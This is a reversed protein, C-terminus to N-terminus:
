RRTYIKSLASAIKDAIRLPEPIPSYICTKKVLGIAEDVDLGKIYARIVRWPTNVLIMKKYTEEIVRYREVWDVFHESLAKKVRDLNLEHTQIVIVGKGTAYNLYDPDVVDFGAYTVGDLLVVEGRLLRSMDIITNITTNQDVRVTAWTVDLVRSVGEVEVGVIFTFGRGGKYYVPFFGDDYAEILERIM